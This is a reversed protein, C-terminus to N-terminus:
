KNTADTSMSKAAVPQANAAENPLAIELAPLLRGIGSLVRYQAALESFLGTSYSLRSNFYENEANLLDLLTRQGISFQKAYAERANASADVYQKLVVNRERASTFGNYALSVGEEVQRRIRSLNENAENILHHTERIKAADAGGKYLNYRLKFMAALEESRGSISHESHNTGLEFDVRPSLASKAISNQAKATEVDARATKLAPHNEIAYDIAATENAPLSAPAVSPKKLANPRQALLRLFAIEADKLSSQETRLSAKALALRSDAQDLDARRGVGSDSRLKIMEYIKQHSELNSVAFETSEQRRLIELYAGVVRLAIDESTAAVRAASSDVRAQQRAVESKVGFGDFLMQTLTAGATKRSLANGNLGLLRTEPTDLNERGYAANLDVRPWYGAQAQNLEEDNALRRSASALVDPNTRIAHEVAERLTQANAGLTTMAVLTTTLSIFIRKTSTSSLMTIEGSHQNNFDAKPCEVLPAASM